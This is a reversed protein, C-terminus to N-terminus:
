QGSPGTKPAPQELSPVYRDDLHKHTRFFEQLFMINCAAHDLHPLGTEPDLDEGRAFALLHRMTSGIIRTWAFGKRWNNASYKAAGYTLVAATGELAIASLLEMRPKSSDYKVAEM